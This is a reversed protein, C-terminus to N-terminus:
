RAVRRELKRVLLSSPYSLVLFFLGAMTYPEVFRYEITGAARAAGVLDVVGITLLLPTDKFMSIIYNGLAPLVRPIAQPLIVAQWVRRQPLSLARAAEWQGPPVAEIGARYVEADYSGYKLGLVLVGVTFSALKVGYNPLVFYVLYLQVLLPTSRVFEIVAWCLQSLVPVKSRRGLSLLLGVVLALASGLVTAEVTLRLGRLLNPLIQGVFSWSWIQM